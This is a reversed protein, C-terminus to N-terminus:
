QEEFDQGCGNCSISLGSKAWINACGCSYKIKSRKKAKPEQDGDQEGGEKNSLFKRLLLGETDLWNFVGKGEFAEYAKSFSGSEIIYHTMSDGTMKGGEEGTHSPQLGVDKMKLAWERNHYGRRGPFGFHHQWLHCMEHVLTSLGQEESRIAFFTPNLAIEDTTLSEDSSSFRNGSFYGLAGNKRQLTILCSPLEDSFLKVNFFSYATQLAAYQQSTPNMNESM